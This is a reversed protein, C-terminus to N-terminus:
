AARYYQKRTMGAFAPIWCLGKYRIGGQRSTQDLAKKQDSFRTGSGAKAPHRTWHSDQVQCRKKPTQDLVKNIIDAQKALIYVIYVSFNLFTTMAIGGLRSFCDSRFSTM